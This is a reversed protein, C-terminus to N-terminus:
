GFIECPYNFQCYYEFGGTTIPEDRECDNEEDWWDETWETTENITIEGESNVMYHEQFCCGSEESFVEIGVGLKKCLLDLTIYHATGHIPNWNDDKKLVILEEPKEETGFWNSCSWAVDGSIDAVYYEGDKYINSHAEFCRYIFYEPDKYEMISILRELAEKNESVAKMTYFCNNAM